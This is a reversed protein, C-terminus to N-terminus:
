CGNTRWPLSGGDVSFVVGHVFDSAPSTLFLAAGEIDEREEWPGASTRGLIMQFTKAFFVM